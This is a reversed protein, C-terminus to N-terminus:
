IPLKTELDENPSFTLTELDIIGKLITVLGYEKNKSISYAQYRYEILLCDTCDFQIWKSQDASKYYWAWLSDKLSM